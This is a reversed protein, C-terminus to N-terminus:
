AALRAPRLRTAERLEAIAEEHRGLDNLVRGLNLRAEAITPSSGSRRASSPSPRKTTAERDRWYCMAADLRPDPARYEPRLKDVERFAPSRGPPM